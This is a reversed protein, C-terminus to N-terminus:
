KDQDSIVHFNRYIALALLKNGLGVFPVHNPISKEIIRDPTIPTSRINSFLIMESVKERM